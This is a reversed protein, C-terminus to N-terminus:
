ARPPAADAAARFRASEAAHTHERALAVRAARREPTETRPLDRAIRVWEAPTGAVYVHERFPALSPLPAALVPRGMALCEYIKAPVVGVTFDNIRHPLLFADFDQLREVLRDLRVPPLVRVPPPPPPAKLFGSLSVQFGAAALASLYAPDLDAVWSGYYCFRRFDPAPPKAAFFAESVGQHLQVVRPHEKKKQEYLYDSDCVVLAARALLDAELRAFDRPAGPHGRFNSACDYVVKAPALADLLALTTATPFYVVALAGDRLGSARLRRALAPVLARANLARFLAGAPPLVSPTVVTLGPPVPNAVGVGGPTLLNRARQRLRPLDRLGPAHFGTNEVFFVEDGAAAYGAAFIHHRQWATDWDISSLVVVQRRPASM